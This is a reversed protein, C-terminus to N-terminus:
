VGDKKHQDKVIKNRLIEYWDKIWKWVIICSNYLVNLNDFAM